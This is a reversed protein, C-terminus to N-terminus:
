WDSNRILHRVSMRGVCGELSIGVLLNEMRGQVKGWHGWIALEGEQEGQVIGHGM